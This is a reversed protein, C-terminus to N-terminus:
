GTYPYREADPTLELSLAQAQAESAKQIRAIKKKKKIVM